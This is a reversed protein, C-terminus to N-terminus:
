VREIQGYPIEARTEGIVWRFLVQLRHSVPLNREIIGILDKLIGKKVRITDGVRYLLEQEVLSGDRTTTKLAEVFGESVPIPKERDGLIRLVGRTFHVLRHLCSDEFDSHIFLYSPFLPKTAVPFSKMKPLFVEFGAHFLQIKVVEERHPKTQIVYWRNM